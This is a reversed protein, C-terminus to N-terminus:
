KNSKGHQINREPADIVTIDGANYDSRDNVFPRFFVYYGSEIYEDDLNSNHIFYSKGNQGCIFGYGKDRFYKTVTGFM